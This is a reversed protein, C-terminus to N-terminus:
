VASRQFRKAASATKPAKLAVTRVLLLDNAEYVEQMGGAGVYGIVEYRGAGVADGAKHLTGIM